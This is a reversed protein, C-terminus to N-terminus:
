CTTSSTSRPGGRVPVARDRHPDSTSWFSEYSAQWPSNAWVLAVVTALVLLIGGAAEVHLFRVLPQAARALVRDSQLFSPRASPVRSAPM